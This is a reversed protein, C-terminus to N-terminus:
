AVPAVTVTVAVPVVIRALVPESDIAPPSASAASDTPLMGPLAVPPTTVSAALASELTTMPVPEVVFACARNPATASATDPLWTLLSKTMARLLASQPGVTEPVDSTTFRTM